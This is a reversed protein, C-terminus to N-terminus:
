AKQINLTFLFLAATAALLCLNGIVVGTVGGVVTAMVVGSAGFLALTHM